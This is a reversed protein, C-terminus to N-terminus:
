KTNITKQQPSTATTPLSRCTSSRTRLATMRHLDQISVHRQGATSSMVTPPLPEHYQKAVNKSKWGGIEQNVLEMENPTRSAALVETSGGIRLSRTSFGVSPLNFHVAAAKPEISIMNREMNKNKGEFKSFFQDKPGYTNKQLCFHVVDDLLQNEEFTLRTLYQDKGHGKTGTKSSFQTFAIVSVESSQRISQHIEMVRFFAGGVTEFVVEDNLYTHKGNQVITVNSVRLMFNFCIAITVYTMEAVLTHRQLLTDRLWHIIEFSIPYKFNQSKIRALDKAGPQISKRAKLVPVSAFWDIPQLESSFFFQLGPLHVRENINLRHM